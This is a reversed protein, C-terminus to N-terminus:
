SAGGLQTTLAGSSPRSGGRDPGTVHVHAHRLARRLKRILDHM